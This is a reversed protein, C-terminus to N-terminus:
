ISEQHQSGPLKCEITTQTDATAAAASCHQLAATCQGPNTVAGWM